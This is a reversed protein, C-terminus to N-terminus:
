RMVNYDPSIMFLYLAMKLRSFDGATNDNFPEIATKIIARTDDSLQGNTLLVDLKNILVESDKAYYLLWSFDTDTDTVSDEYTNFLNEEVTWENVYNLYGISTRTNHIQFEPGVLDLESIPGNPQFDPLFFNFVSPSHLPHQGTLLEFASGNNWFIGLPNDAGVVRAFQTYRNIPERLRGHVPDNLWECTRAEEDLLIAKIVAKMDGRVGQGNNNFVEAVRSIYEPSPNSKILRQILQRGIFPGVNPHNFLHEVAMEVDQMGTQGDPIVFGNLLQKEGPEHWNEYMAMPVTFDINGQSLFFQPPFNDEQSIVGGAGLGTFVKAFESIDNNDYTPIFNGQADTKRSGNQNLEFLGISFLQMVERAYNEDPHINQEPIARPNNLHSLYVGMSPHLTVDLLLDKYNGLANDILVDYYDAVAEGRNLLDSHISIVFVESLAFAVRQRLLDENTMNLQWWAYDFHEWEPSDTYNVEFGGNDVYIQKGLNYVDIMVPLLYTPNIEAQQDIWDEFDMAAVEEILQQSAGFTAQSLFRSADILKGELGAGNLTNKGSAIEEWGDEQLADSTTITIGESNGGGIYDSYIQASIFLSPFFFLTFLLLRKM